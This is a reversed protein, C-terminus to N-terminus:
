KLTRCELLVWGEGLITRPHSFPLAHGDILQAFTVRNEGYRGPVANLTHTHETGKGPTISPLIAVQVQQYLCARARRRPKRPSQEDIQFFFQATFDVDSFHTGKM